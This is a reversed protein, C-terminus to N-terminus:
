FIRKGTFVNFGNQIEHKIPFDSTGYKGISGGGGGRWSSRVTIYIADYKVMLASHRKFFKNISKILVTSKFGKQQLRLCARRLKHM